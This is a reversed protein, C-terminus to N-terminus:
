QEVGHVAKHCDDCLPVLDTILEAGLREYTRHHVTLQTKQNCTACKFDWFILVRKKTKRWKNSRMHAQYFERDPITQM